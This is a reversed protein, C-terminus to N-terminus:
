SASLSLGEERRNRRGSIFLILGVVFIPVGLVFGLLTSTFASGLQNTLLGVTELVEENSGSPFEDVAGNISVISSITGVGVLLISVVIM